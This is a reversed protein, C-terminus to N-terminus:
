VHARGIQAKYVAGMGGRGVLKLIELEPFYRALEAPTPPIYETRASQGSAGGVSSGTALGRKLLCAPCLGQPADASLATGCQPCKGPSASSVPPPASSTKRNDRVALWVLLGLPWFLFAVLLMVVVGSKGRKEADRYVWILSYAYLGILLLLIMLISLAWSYPRVPVAGTQEVSVLALIALCVNM